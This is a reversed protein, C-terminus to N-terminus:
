WRKGILANLGISFYETNINSNPYRDDIPYTSACYQLSLRIAEFGVRATIGPEFIFKTENERFFAAAEQSYVPDDFRFSQDTFSVVAFRTTLAVDIIKHNFGISGQIFPKIFKTNLMSNGSENKIGGFGLGLYGDYIFKGNETSGFKGVGFETFNGKGTWDTGPTNALYYFSAMVGFSSDAAAAIQLGLGEADQTVGYSANLNVEGKAKLMPVNMGVNSYPVPSCSSFWVMSFVTAIVSPINRKSPM